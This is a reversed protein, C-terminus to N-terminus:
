PCTLGLCVTLPGGTVVASCQNSSNCAKVSYQYTAGNAGTEASTTAPATINVVRGDDRSLVYYAVSGTSAAWRESWTGSRNIGTPLPTGPASPVSGLVTVSAPSSVASVNGVADYAAVTYTLTAGGGATADTYSTAPAAVSQLVKTKDARYVNYGVLGSGGTDVSAGWSVTVSNAVTSTAKVGTPVSPPLTDPTTVSAAVSAASTNGTRDYAKVAYSYTTTGLTTGDTYTATASTNIQTGNRLIKYGALGSGGTDTSATWTLNVANSSTSTAALGVPVSPELTDPTTVAVAVCQPSANGANDYALVTYTYTVTGSTSSDSYNTLPTAALPTTGGNRFVRYGATGSGSLNDASAQWTLNVTGSAPAAVTLGAPVAPPTTDRGQTTATRNGAPDLTYQIFTGDDYQVSILRGADDYVYTAATVARAMSTAVALGVGAILVPLHKVLPLDCHSGRSFRTPRM